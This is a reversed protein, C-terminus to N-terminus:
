LYKRGFEPEVPGALLYVKDGASWSATQLMNVTSVQPTAPPPDKLVAGPLVFLYLMQQDGRDFCVMSVPHGRWRLSGGGTLTLQKLGPTLSYDAPAGRAAMFQRVQIMDNTVIDMSYQRLATSVMRLRYDAFRDPVPSRLWFSAVAALLVMAAAAAIWVPSRQWAAPRVIKRKALISEKLDAAVPLARFKRQLARQLACHQEFWRQLEPNQRVQELAAAIEPERDDDTGPRYLELIRKVEQSNM